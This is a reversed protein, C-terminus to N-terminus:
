MGSRPLRCGTNAVITTMKRTGLRITTGEPSTFWVEHSGPEDRVMDREGAGFGTAVEKVRDVARSWLSDPIPQSGGYIALYIDKEGTTNYPPMCGGNSRDDYWDWNMGPILSALYDSLEVVANRIQAETDELSPLARLKEMAAAAAHANGPQDSADNM